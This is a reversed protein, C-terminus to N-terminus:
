HFYLILGVIILKENNNFDELYLTMVQFATLILNEDKCVM